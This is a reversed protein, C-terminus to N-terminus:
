IQLALGALLASFTTIGLWHVRQLPSFGSSKLTAPPSPYALECTSGQWNGQCQCEFYGTSGTTPQRTGSPDAFCTGNNKCPNPNCSDTGNIFCFQSNFEGRDLLVAPAQCQCVTRFFTAGRSVILPDVTCTGGQGCPGPAGYCPNPACTVNPPTFFSPIVTPLYNTPCTYHSTNLDQGM